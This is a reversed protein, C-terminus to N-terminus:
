RWERRNARRSGHRQQIAAAERRTGSQGRLERIKRHAERYATAHDVVPAPYDVGVRCGCFIQEMEPMTEPAPLWPSPVDRLEPVWHRIFDGAPDHDRAQKAPSYVRLTNIGTTASQMQVQPWHIGPEYDIFMRALHLGPKRWHLWLHHSAFSMVMARMRFNLWGTADLARMCADVMPYGTCGERWATFAPDDWDPERRELRDSACSLNHFEIDPADELKQMFHCHWLLRSGFSKLSRPWRPDVPGDGAARAQRLAAAHRAVTQHVERMGLAGWALYPSVRGCADFATVPSSMARTYDVGRGGLFGELWRLGERRGGRQRLDARPHPPGEELAAPDHLADPFLAERIRDPVDIPPRNMREQWRTAWGDRTRLRRVVGNQPLEIWEVGRGRCWRAVAKDREYTWGAGTEEHSWLRSFGVARWLRDLCVIMDGRMALLRAGRVRLEDDLEALCQVAFQRHRDDFDEAALWATEEVWLPLVPGRVAAEALAAHDGCRLDKKFWVVEM